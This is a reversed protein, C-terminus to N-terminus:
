PTQTTPALTRSADMVIQRERAIDAALQAIVENSPDAQSALVAILAITRRHYALHTELNAVLCACVPCTDM